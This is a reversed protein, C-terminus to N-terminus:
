SNTQSKLCRSSKHVTNDTIVSWAKMSPFMGYLYYFCIFTLSTHNSWDSTHGFCKSTVWWMCSIDDDLFNTAMYIYYTNVTTSSLFALCVKYEHISINCKTCKGFYGYWVVYHCYPTTLLTSIEASLDQQDLCILIIKSFAM